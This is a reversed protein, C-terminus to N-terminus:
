TMSSCIMTKFLSRNAIHIKACIYIYTWQRTCLLKQWRIFSCKSSTAQKIIYVPLATRPWIKQLLTLLSQNIWGRLMFVTSLTWHEKSIFARKFQQMEHTVTCTPNSRTQNRHSLLFSIHWWRVVSGKQVTFSLWYGQHRTSSRVIPQTNM